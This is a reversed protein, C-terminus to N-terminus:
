GDVNVVYQDTAKVTFSGWSGEYEVLDPNSNEIVKEVEGSLFRGGAITETPITSNKTWFLSIKDGVNLKNSTNNSKIQMIRAYTVMNNCDNCCVSENDDYDCLPFPNNSGIDSIRSGCICCVPM